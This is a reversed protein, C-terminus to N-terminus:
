STVRRFRRLLLAIIAAQYALGIVFALWASSGGALLTWYVRAAWYNPVIGFAWQWGSEIFYAVIPPIFFFGLAKGLAFGQVKNAAFVALLLAYLPAFPAAVVAAAMLRALGLSTLGALPFALLTIVFSIIIPMALRYLLYNGLSLPTVRLATLTHDDRQDLLLFGVVMGVLAPTLLLLAYGMIPEFYPQLDLGAASSVHRLMLPLLWRAALAFVLPIVVIWRLLADRRVNRADIPGLARFAKIANMQDETM